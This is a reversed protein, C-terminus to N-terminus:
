YHPSEVHILEPKEVPPRKIEQGIDPRTTKDVPNLSIPRNETISRYLAEVIRVDAMGERGSPEPQQQSHVCQSFYILEAAFQDRKAFVEKKTKGGVTLFQTLKGAYEYGPELRLEGEAGVIRYSSVDSAAFSTTFTALREGPFRLMASTTEDVEDFRPDGTSASWAFVEEPEARFLSRAANICYVGIDYLTGGGTESQLRIGPKAQMSFSSAFYKLEGLEGSQALEAAKLNAAEFHLRYAIMLRVQNAQAAEIMRNCEAETVAMPKECLVHVGAEAAQVAYQCHLHNPLAIYVADVDGSRLCEDYNDYSYTQPVHYKRSLKKLKAADGSVLAALQSNEEAHQFAPLVAVQAIHGLGVVAYRVPQGARTSEDNM